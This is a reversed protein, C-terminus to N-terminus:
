SNVNLLFHGEISYLDPLTLLMYFSIWMWCLYFECILFLFCCLYFSGVICLYCVPLLRWLVRIWGYVICLLISCDAWFSVPFPTLLASSVCSNAMGDLGRGFYRQKMLRRITMRQITRKRYFCSNVPNLLRSDLESTLSSSVDSLFLLCPPPHCHVHIASM